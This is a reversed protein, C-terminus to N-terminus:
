GGARYLTLQEGSTRCSAVPELYPSDLPKSTEALVWRIGEPPPEGRAIAALQARREEQSAVRTFTNRFRIRPAESYVTRAGTAGFVTLEAPHPVGVNAVTDAAGIAVHPSCDLRATDPRSEDHRSQAVAAAATSATAVVVLGAALAVRGRGRLSATVAAAALGAPLTLALALMPLYRLGSSFAPVGLGNDEPVLASLVWVAAPVGVTCWLAARALPDLARRVLWLGGLGLPLTLGFAVVAQLLSPDAPEVLSTRVFGGLQFYHWALPGLWVLSVALAAAPPVIATRANHLVLGLAVAVAAAVIGAPPSCLVALGAAAGGAALLRADASRSGRVVLWLAMPILALGWDRPLAPPVASLSPMSAPALLFDGHYRDITEPHVGIVPDPTLTQLWGFGGGALALLMSWTSGARGIGLERALLWVGLGLTLVMTLEVVLLTAGMGGPLLEFVWSGFAHYLWPYGNPVGSYVGTPEVQGDALQRIWGEHWLMDGGYNAVPQIVEPLAAVLGAAVGVALPLPDVGRPALDRRRWWAAAGLAVALLPGAVLPHGVASVCALPQLMALWALGLVALVGAALRQGPPSRRAIVTGVVWMAALLLAVDLAATIDNEVRWPV